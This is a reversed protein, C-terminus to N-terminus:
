AGEEENLDVPLNYEENLRLTPLAPLQKPAPQPILHDVLTKLEPWAQFLKSSTICRALISDLENKAEAKEQILCTHDTDLKHWKEWIPDNEKCQYVVWLNYNFCHQKGYMVENELQITLVSGTPSAFKIRSDSSFFQDGLDHMKQLVESTYYTAYIKMGLDFFAKKLEQEKKEFRRKLVLNKIKNKIDNTLRVSAM